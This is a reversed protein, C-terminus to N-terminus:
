DVLGWVELHHCKFDSTSSLIENEYSETKVSCGRYIDNSMFLAFRGKEKSGGLGFSKNDAFM